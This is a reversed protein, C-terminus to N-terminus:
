RERKGWFSGFGKLIIRLFWGGCFRRRRATGLFAYHKDIAVDIGVILCESSGRVEKRFHRFDELRSGDEPNM